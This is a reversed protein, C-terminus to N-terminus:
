ESATAQATTPDLASEGRAKAQAAEAVAARLKAATEDPVALLFAEWVADVAGASNKFNLLSGVFELGDEGVFRDEDSHYAQIAAWFLTMINTVNLVKFIEGPNTLPIGTKKEVLSLANFNLCLQFPFDQVKGDPAQAKLTFSVSPGLWNKSLSSKAM